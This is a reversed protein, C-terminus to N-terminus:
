PRPRTETVTRSDPYGQHAVRAQAQQALAESPFPGIRVRQLPSGEPGAIAGMEARYGINQLLSITTLATDRDSFSGIQVYWLLSGPTSHAPALPGPPVALLPKGPSPVRPAAPVTVGVKPPSGATTSALPTSPSRVVPVKARPAVAAPPKRPARLVPPSAQTTSPSESASSSPRQTAPAANPAEALGVPVDSGTPAALPVSGLPVTASPLIEEGGDQSSPLLWSLAFLTALIVILGLVRRVFAENM